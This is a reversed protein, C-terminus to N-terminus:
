QSQQSLFQEVYRCFNDYLYNYPIISFWKPENHTLRSFAVQEEPFVNGIVGIATPYQVELKYKRYVYDRHEKEEFYEKYDLLQNRLDHVESKLGTRVKNLNKIINRKAKKYDVIVWSKNLLDYAILDPKLDHEYKELINKLVIQHNPKVLNLGKELILPNDELFKDIVLEPTHENFFLSEMKELLYRLYELQKLREENKRFNHFDINSRIMETALIRPNNLRDVFGDHSFVFSYDIPISQNQSELTLSQMTSERSDESFDFIPIPLPNGSVAMFAFEDKAKAKNFIIFYQNRDVSFYAYVKIFQNNFPEPIAKRTDVGIDKLIKTLDKFEKMLNECFYNVMNSTININPKSL